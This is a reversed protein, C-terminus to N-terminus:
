GEWYDADKQLQPLIANDTVMGRLAGMGINQDATAGSPDLLNRLDGYDSSWENSLIPKQENHSNSSSNETTTSTSKKSKLGMPSGQLSLQPLLYLRADGAAMRAARHLHGPRM